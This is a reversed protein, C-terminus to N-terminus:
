ASVQPRVRSWDLFEAASMPRAILFGQAVPCELQRLLDWEVKSEV